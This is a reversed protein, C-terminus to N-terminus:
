EAAIAAPRAEKAVGTWVWDTNSAPEPEETESKITDLLDRLKDMAEQAGGPVVVDRVGEKRAKEIRKVLNNVLQAADLDETNPVRSKRFSYWPDVHDLLYDVVADGDDFDANKRGAKNLMFVGDSNLKAFGFETVWLGIAQRDAGPVAAFLRTFATVDGHEYAHGAANCLVEHINFRLSAVSERIGGIKVNLEKMTLM